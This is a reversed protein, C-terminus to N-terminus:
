KALGLAFNVLETGPHGLADMDAAMKDYVPKVAEDWRAYEDDTLEIFQIGKELSYEHTMKEDEVWTDIADQRSWELSDDIVKQFEPPLRNWSDMNMIFFNISCGLSFNPTCEFKDAIQFDYMGGTTSTGGDTTGKDLSNIWDQMPMSIPLAGLNKTIDGLIASPVRLELGKMDEMTHVVKDTLYFFTPLSPVLWLVKFDTWQSEMLDPFENWIAEFIRVGDLTDQGPVLQTLNVGVEFGPEGGYIFCNGIDAVGDRIGSRMEPPPILQSSPYHRITILGNSDQKVKEAWRELSASAPATPAHMSAMSLEVPELAATTDTSPAATTAPGATTAPAATTTAPEEDGCAMAGAAVVVLLVVLGVLLLRAKM